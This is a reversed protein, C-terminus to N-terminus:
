RGKPKPSVHRLAPVFPFKTQTNHLFEAAGGTEVEKTLEALRCARVFARCGSTEASCFAPIGWRAACAVILHDMKMCQRGIGILQDGARGEWLLAAIRGAETDAQLVDCRTPSFISGVAARGEAETLKALVEAVVPAPIAFRYSASGYLDRAEAWAREQGEKAKTSVWYAAVSTDVALLSVM